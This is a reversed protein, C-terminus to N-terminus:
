IRSCYSSYLILAQTFLPASPAAAAGPQNYLVQLDGSIATDHKISNHWNNIKLKYNLGVMSMLRNNIMLWHHLATVPWFALIQSHVWFCNSTPGCQLHHQSRDMLSPIITKSSSTLLGTDVDLAIHSWPKHSTALPQHLGSPWLSNNKRCACISCAAVYDKVYKELTLFSPMLHLKGQPGCKPAGSNSSDVIFQKKMNLNVLASASTFLQKLKKFASKAEPSWVLPTKTSTLSHQPYRYNRM